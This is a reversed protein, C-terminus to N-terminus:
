RILIYINESNIIRRIDKDFLLNLSLKEKRLNSEFEQLYLM